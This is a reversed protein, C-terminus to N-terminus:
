NYDILRGVSYGELLALRLGHLSYTFPIFTSFKVIWSPLLEQPFLLGSMIMFIGGIVNMAGDGKKVVLVLAALMVGITIYCVMSLVFVIAAALLNAKGISFGFIFIGCLLYLFIRLTTFIYSWLSSSFLFLFLRTPSAMIIELTGTLQGDRINGSFSNVSVGTYDAFAVGIMLFGFYSGGYPKLFPIEASDVLKGIYFLTTMIGLISVIMTVFNFRYSLFILFDKKVFALATRIM